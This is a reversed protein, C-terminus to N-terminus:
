GSETCDIDGHARETFEGLSYRYRVQLAALAAGAGDTSTHPAVLGCAALGDLIQRTLPSDPSRGVSDEVVTLLHILANSDADSLPNHM